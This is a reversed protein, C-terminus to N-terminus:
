TAFATWPRPAASVLYQQHYDEAFHFEVLEEIETTIPREHHAATLAAQYAHQSAIAMSRQEETCYYIGSRYQTGEDEGQAYGQTPDHCAWFVALLDAYSLTSPDYLVQVVEAHMSEGKCIEAYTPCPTIGQAYGVATAHVGPLRWFAKETGWFCGTAFVARQLEPQLRHDMNTQACAAFPFRVIAIVSCVCLTACRQPVRMGAACLASGREM